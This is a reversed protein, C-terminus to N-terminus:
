KSTLGINHISRSVKNPLLPMVVPPAVFIRKRLLETDSPTQRHARGHSRLLGESLHPNDKLVNRQEKM